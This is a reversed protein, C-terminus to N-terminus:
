KTLDWSVSDSTLILRAGCSYVNTDDGSAEIRGKTIATVMAQSNDRKNLLKKVERVLEETHLKVLFSDKPNHSLVVVIRMGM